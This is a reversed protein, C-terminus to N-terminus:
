IWTCCIMRICTIWRRWVFFFVSWCEGLKTMCKLLWSWAYVEGLKVGSCKTRNTSTEINQAGEGCLQFIVTFHRCILWKGNWILYKGLLTLVCTPLLVVNRFKHIGHWSGRICDLRAWGANEDFIAGGRSHHLSVTQLNRFPAITFAIEYWFQLSFLRIKVMLQWYRSTRCCYIEILYESFFSPMWTLNFFFTLM